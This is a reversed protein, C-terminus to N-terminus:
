DFLIRTPRGDTPFCFVGAQTETEWGYAFGRNTRVQSVNCRAMNRPIQVRNLQADPYGALSLDRRATELREMAPRNLLNALLATVILAVPVTIWRSLKRPPREGNMRSRYGLSNGNGVGLRLASQGSEPASTPTRKRRHLERSFDVRLLCELRRTLPRRLVM